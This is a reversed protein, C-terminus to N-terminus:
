HELADVVNRGFGFPKRELDLPNVGKLTFDESMGCPPFCTTTGPAAVKGM